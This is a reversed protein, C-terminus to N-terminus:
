SNGPVTLVRGFLFCAVIPEFSLVHKLCWSPWAFGGFFFSLSKSNPHFLIERVRCSYWCMLLLLWSFWNHCGSWAWERETDAFGRSGHILSGIRWGVFCVAFCVQKALSYLSMYWSGRLRDISRGVLSLVLDPQNRSIRSYHLSIQNTGLSAHTTYPSRTTLSFFVCLSRDRPPPSLLICPSRDPESFFSSHRLSRFSHIRLLLFVVVTEERTRTTKLSSCLWSSLAQLCLTSCMLSHLVIAELSLSLACVHKKLYSGPM